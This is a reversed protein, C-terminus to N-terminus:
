AMEKASAHLRVRVKDATHTDMGDWCPILVASRYAEAAGPCDDYGLLRACDDMVESGIGLDLGHWQAVRRLAAIDGSFRAVFNYFVPNGHAARQQVVFERPLNQVMMQWLTDMRANRADLEALRRRAWRAQVGSFADPSRVRQNTRRYFTEFAGARHPAFLIRAAAAYLPSRVGAEEVAKLLYKRVVPWRRFPRAAIAARIRKALGDDRTVAVGGGFAALAKNAELSFLAAVGFSGVPRDNVLAGPAHACDEILALDHQEALSALSIIDCPAGHEHLALIARTRPGIRQRVSEADVNFTTPDIDAPVLRLGQNQLLPLLEGLTYAPIIMEDGPKLDLARVILCLADRGSATAIVHPVVMRTAFAREFAAVEVIATEASMGFSAILESADERNLPLRRRPIM